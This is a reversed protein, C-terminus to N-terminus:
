LFCEKGPSKQDGGKEEMPLWSHYSYLKGTKPKRSQKLRSRLRDTGCCKSLLPDQDTRKWREVEKPCDGTSVDYITLKKASSSAKIFKRLSHV